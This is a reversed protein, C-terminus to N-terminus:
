QTDQRIIALESKRALRWSIVLFLVALVLFGLSIPKTLFIMPDGRSMMLARALNAEMMPGLVLTLALPALPFDFKTLIYGIIGFVLAVGIDWTRMNLSYTGLIIFVFIVPFLIKQPVRLVQVWMPILPLNLILLVINGLYLSGIVTWVFDPAEFFLNPGPTLGHIMFGAMLIAVTPSGPIGLTFLPILASNSYANNATEPSAIGEIVGNGWGEKPKPNVKQELTYAMFTPVVTGMGPITGLVVGVGTGRLIAGISRRWDERTPMMSKIKALARGAPKEINTLLDSIGFMGMIVAILDVGGMLELRGFSFRQNALIPDQGVVAIALGFFAILLAKGISKGALGIVMSLGFVMLSFLEPPGFSLAVRSLPLAILVLCFVAITGGIFSGIAAISLAPGARGNRAMPHGEICTVVSAAEGPVNLLVSTITGGYMAGYYIAALMIISPLAPLNFTLPLLLATGAAPGVGPLVGIVTGVVSGIFLYLLYEPNLATQLGQFLYGFAEM